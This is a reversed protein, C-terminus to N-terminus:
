SGGEGEQVKIEKQREQYMRRMEELLLVPLGTKECRKFDKENM